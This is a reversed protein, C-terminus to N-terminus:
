ASGGRTSAGGDVDDGGRRTRAVKELAWERTTRDNRTTAVERITVDFLDNKHLAMGEDLQRLFDEDEITAQRTGRPTRVRWKEGARFDISRLQAEAEFTSVEEEIDDSEAAAIRYDTRDVVLPAEAVLLDRTEADTRGNRVELRDADDGLPALLKRLSRKTTRKQTKLQRWASQPIESVSNDAWKVKVNGNDLYEFDTVQVGRLKRIAAGLAGMLAGGTTLAMGLAAEPNDGTWSLLAEVIFSGEQPPRVRVEPPPGDGFLGARAMQGTFEVLGQLVEALEAANLDQIQGEEDAFRLQMFHMHFRPHTELWTTVTPTKHAADNDAVLHVDLEAPVLADIKTLFKKFEVARHRRHTSSIVTGDATNFAAFLSTAAHRV